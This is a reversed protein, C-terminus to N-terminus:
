DPSFSPEDPTARVAEVDTGSVSVSWPFFQGFAANMPPVAPSGPQDDEGADSCDAMKAPTMAGHSAISRSLGKHHACAVKTELGRDSGSAVSGYATEVRSSRFQNVASPGDPDAGPAGARASKAKVSRTASAPLVAKAQKGLLGDFPLPHQSRGEQISLGHSSSPGVIMLIPDTLETELAEVVDRASKGTRPRSGAGEGPAIDEGESGAGAQAGSAGVDAVAVDHAAASEAANVTDVLADRPGAGASGDAHAALPGGILWGAVALAAVTGFRRMGRRGVLRPLRSGCRLLHTDIPQRGM